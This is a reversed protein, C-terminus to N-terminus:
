INKLNPNQKSVMIRQNSKRSIDQPIQPHKINQDTLISILVHKDETRTLKIKIKKNNEKYNPHFKNRISDSEITITNKKMSIHPLIMFYNIWKKFTDFDSSIKSSFYRFEITGHRMFSSINTGKYRPVKGILTELEKIPMKIIKNYIKIGYKSLIDNAYMLNDIGPIIVGLIRNLDNKDEENTIKSENKIYSNYLLKRLVIRLFDDYLDVRLKSYRELDRDSGVYKQVETEDVLSGMIIADFGDFNENLGVHVHASTNGSTIEDSVYDSVQKLINLDEDNFKLHRSAIEVVGSEDEFVGWNNEDAYSNVQQNLEDSLYESVNLIVSDIDPSLIYQDEVFFETWRGSDYLDQVFDDMKEEYHRDVWKDYEREIDEYEIKWEEYEREYDEENEYNNKEPESNQSTWSDLDLPGFEDDWSDTYGNWKKYIKYRNEEIWDEYERRVSYDASLDSLIRDEDYLVEGYSNSPRFELEVGFTGLKLDSYMDSMKNYIEDSKKFPIPAEQLNKM